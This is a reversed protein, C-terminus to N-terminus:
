EAAALLDVVGKRVLECAEDRIADLSYRISQLM